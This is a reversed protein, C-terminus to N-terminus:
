VLDIWQRIVNSLTRQPRKLKKAIEIINQGTKYMAVYDGPDVGGRSNEMFVTRNTNGVFQALAEAKLETPLRRDYLRNTFVLAQTNYLNIDPRRNEVLHYYGLVSTMQGYSFLVAGEPLTELVTEAYRKTIAPGRRDNTRWSPVAVAIVLATGIAGALATRAPGGTWRNTNRDGPRGDTSATSSAPDDPRSGAKDQHAAWETTRMSIWDIGLGAWLTTIGYSVLPYARFVQVGNEDFDFGLLLILVLSNGALAAAGGAATARSTGGRRILVWLGIAALVAGPITLQAVLDRAMWEMFAERDTWDATVSTDVHAYGRRSVMHWFESWTTIPPYFSIDLAQRSRWVTWTYPIAAGIAALGLPGPLRRLHTRWAPALLLMLGPTALLTLPWHAAM